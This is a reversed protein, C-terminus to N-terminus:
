GRPGGQISGFPCIGVCLGCGACISADIQVPTKNGGTSASAGNGGESSAGGGSHVSATVFGGSDIAGGAVGGGISANKEVSDSADSDDVSSIAPCGIRLCVGCARCDKVHYPEKRDKSLLVCPSKAIIVSVTEKELEERIVDELEKAKLPDVTCVSGAGCGLCLAALDIMPAPDGYIDNGTSPNEQHGTMGTTRNDLILVTITGHNYVADILPTIGSHLFTSDGIVAVAKRSFAKGRTKEAGFAMGVSAGMCLTTDISSLPPSGGLTYCGIDGFVTLKLKKLAQFVARHPCGPCLAPPRPIVPVSANPTEVQRSLGAPTEVPESTRTERAATAKVPQSSGAPVESPKDTSREGTASSEMLHGDFLAKRVKAIGLEGQLGTKKKGSVAVGMAKIADELFPELEEIVVLKRVKKAFEQILAGPLPYVMGLKLVSAEPAAERVYQYCVGSCIVGLAADRMEARNVSMRSADAAMQKERKEVVPHRRRANAPTMVYKASDSIFPLLEKEVRESLTVLSRAHSVRTTLRVMVPTDYAESLSFAIKVFDLCEQADAPELIPIHASRGYYRSDQENQSSFMSPDDAVVVVLGARIGTYAATFFPDAAVNLGVHKMCTMARAGAVAAGYAVEMAVKENTAWEAHIENKYRAVAETIETSPTGPYSSVVLAGAEWAGRAIAENGLLLQKEM